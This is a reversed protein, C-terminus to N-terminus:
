VHKSTNKTKDTTFDRQTFIKEKRKIKMSGKQIQEEEQGEGQKQKKQIHTHTDIEGTNYHSWTSTMGTGLTHIAEKKTKTKRQM